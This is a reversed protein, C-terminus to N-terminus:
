TSKWKMERLRLLLLSINVMLLGLPHGTIVNVKPSTRLIRGDADMVYIDWNAGRHSAFAIRESSPSWSPYRDIHSRSNTLNEPNRGNADVVYIDTKGKRDSTFAIRKGDPSWSPEWEGHSSNTLNRPDGGDVNMVYIDWSRNNQAAFTIRTADPSWSLFDDAWRDHTIQRPNNGNGDMMYIDVTHIRESTFAIQAQADVGVMLATLVLLAVSALMFYVFSYRRGM